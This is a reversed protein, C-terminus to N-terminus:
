FFAKLVLYFAGILIVGVLWKVIMSDSPAPAMDLDSKTAAQAEAKAVVRVAAEAHRTPIGAAKLTEKLKLPDLAPTPM